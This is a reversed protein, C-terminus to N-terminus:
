KRGSSLKGGLSSVSARASDHFPLFYASTGSGPDPPWPSSSATDHADGFYQRATPPAGPPERPVGAEYTHFPLLQIKLFTSGGVPPPALVAVRARGPARHRVAVYQAAM